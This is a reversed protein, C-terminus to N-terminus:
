AEALRYSRGPDTECDVEADRRRVQRERMTRIFRRLRAWPVESYQAYFEEESLRAKQGQEQNLAAIALAAYVEHM